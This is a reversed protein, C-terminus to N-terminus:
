NNMVKGQMLAPKVHKDWSLMAAVASVGPGIVWGVIPILLLLYLGFGNGVTLMRYNRIIRISKSSSIKHRENNYDMMGFGFYFCDVFLFLFPVIFNVLPIISLMLLLFIFFLQVLANRTSIIIGRIIDIILQKTNFPYQTGLHKEEAKESLLGLFPSCIILFVFKYTFLFAMLGILYSLVGAIKSLVNLIYKWIGSTNTHIADQAFSLGWNGIYGFFYMYLPIAVILFFVGPLLVWGWLKHKSILTFAKSYDKVVEIFLSM